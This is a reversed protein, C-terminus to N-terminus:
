EPQNPNNGDRTAPDEVPSRIAGRVGSVKLLRRLAMEAAADDAEVLVTLRAEGAGDSELAIRSVPLNRRRLEGVARNLALLGHDLRLTIAYQTM